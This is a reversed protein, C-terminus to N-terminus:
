SVQAPCNIGSGSNGIAGSNSLLPDGNGFTNGSGSTVTLQLNQSFGNRKVMGNGNANDKPNADNNGDNAGDGNADGNGDHAGAGDAGSDNSGNDKPDADGNGNGDGNDKPDGNGVASPSGNDFTTPNGNDKNVKNGSGVPNFIPSLLNGVAGDQPAATPLAAIPAALVFAALLAKFQM